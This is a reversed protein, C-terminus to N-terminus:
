PTAKWSASTSRSGPKPSSPTAADPSARTRTKSLAVLDATVTAVIGGSEAGLQLATDECYGTLRVVDARTVRVRATTGAPVTILRRLVPLAARGETGSLEAGPIRLAQYDSGDLNVAEVSLAPIQITLKLVDTGTVLQLRPEPTTGPATLELGLAPGTTLAQGLLILILLRRM